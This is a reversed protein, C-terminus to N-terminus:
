PTACLQVRSFCSLLLLLLMNGKSDTKGTHTKNSVFKNLKLRIFMGENLIPQRMSGLIKLSSEFNTNNVSFNEATM